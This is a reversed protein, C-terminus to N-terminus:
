FLLAALAVVAVLLTSISSASSVSPGATTSSSPATSPPPPTVGGPGTTTAIAASFGEITLTQNSVTAYAAKVNTLWATSTGASNITSLLSSVTANSGDNIAFDIILSGTRLGIIEIFDALIHLLFSLDTLLGTNLKVRCTASSLCSQWDDGSLRLTGVIVRVKTATAVCVSSFNVGMPCSNKNSFNRLQCALEGCYAQTQSGNYSAVVTTLLQAHLSVAWSNCPDTANNRADTLKELCGFFNRLCTTYAECLATTSALCTRVSATANSSGACTCLAIECNRYGTCNSHRYPNAVSVNTNCGQGLAVAALVAIVAFRVLMSM